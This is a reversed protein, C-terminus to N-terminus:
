DGWSKHGRLRSHKGGPGASDVPNAIERTAHLIKDLRGSKTQLGQSLKIEATVGDTLEEPSTQNAMLVIHEMPEHYGTLYDVFYDFHNRKRPEMLIIQALDLEARVGKVKRERKHLKYDNEFSAQNDQRM